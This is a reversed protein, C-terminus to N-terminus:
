VPEAEAPPPPASLVEAGVGIKRGWAESTPSLYHTRDPQLEAELRRLQRSQLVSLPLLGSIAIAFLALAVQLELYSFGGRSGRTTRLAPRRVPFPVTM